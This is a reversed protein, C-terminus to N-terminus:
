VEDSILKGFTSKQAHVGLGAHGIGKEKEAWFPHSFTQKGFGKGGKEELGSVAGLELVAIMRVQVYVM